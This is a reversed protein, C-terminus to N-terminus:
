GCTSAPWPHSIKLSGGPLRVATLLGFREASVDRVIEVGKAQLEAVTAHVDDCMLFLEHHGGTAHPHVALESPPLRFILWGHGADVWDLGLVDRFFARDADADASYIIVHAANIM